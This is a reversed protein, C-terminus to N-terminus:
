KVEKGTLHDIAKAFPLHCKFTVIQRGKFISRGSLATEHKVTSNLGHDPLNSKILSAYIEAEKTETDFWKVKMIKFGDGDVINVNAGMETNEEIIM